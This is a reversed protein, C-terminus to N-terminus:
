DSDIMRETDPGVWESSGDAWTEHKFIPVEDKIRDMIYRCAEFAEARHPAAVAVVVAIDGIELRGLRHAVALRTLGWRSEVEDFIERIKAIAMADYAEYELFGVPRERHHNRVVGCFNVVAGCAPDDVAAYVASVTLPEETLLIM